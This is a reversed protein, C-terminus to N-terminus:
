GEVVIAGWVNDVVLRHTGSGEFAISEQLTRSDSLDEAASPAVVCVVMLLTSVTLISKTM